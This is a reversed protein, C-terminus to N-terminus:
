GTRGRRVVQGLPAGARDLRGELLARMGVRHDHVVAAATRVAPGTATAPGHSPHEARLPPEPALTALCA